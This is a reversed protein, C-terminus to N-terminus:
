APPAPNLTIVLDGPEVQSKDAVHVTEVTGAPGAPV